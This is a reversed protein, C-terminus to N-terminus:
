ESYHSWTGYLWFKWQMRYSKDLNIFIIIKENRIFNWFWSSSIEKIWLIRTRKKRFEYSYEDPYYRQSISQIKWLSSRYACQINRDLHRVKVLWHSCMTWNEHSKSTFYWLTGDFYLSIITRPWNWISLLWLNRRNLRIKKWGHNPNRPVFKERSGLRWKFKSKLNSNVKREVWM